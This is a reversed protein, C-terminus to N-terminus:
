QNEAKYTDIAAQVATGADEPLIDGIVVGDQAAFM